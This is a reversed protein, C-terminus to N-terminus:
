GIVVIYVDTSSMPNDIWFLNASALVQCYVRWINFVVGFSFVLIGKETIVMGTRFLNMIDQYRLVFLSSILEALLLPEDILSTV